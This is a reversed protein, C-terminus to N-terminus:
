QPHQSTSPSPFRIHSDRSVSQWVQCICLCISAALWQVSHPTCSPLTPSPISPASPTQLWMSPAVTDIPWSGQLEWASSLWGFLVCPPVWPVTWTHPLPHGQQVDTLPSARPGSFIPHGLTPSHWPPFVPTPPHTPCCGWLPLPLSSSILHKWVSSRSLPFSKFNLYLFYGM